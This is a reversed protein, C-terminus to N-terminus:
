EEVKGTGNCRKCDIVAPANSNGWGGVGNCEPCTKHTQIEINKYLIAMGCDICYWYGSPHQALRMPCPSCQYKEHTSGVDLVTIHKTM